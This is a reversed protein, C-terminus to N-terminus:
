NFCKNSCRMPSFTRSRFIGNLVNVFDHARIRDALPSYYLASLVRFELEGGVVSSLSTIITDHGEALM